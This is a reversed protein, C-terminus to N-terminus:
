LGSKKFFAELKAIARDASFAKFRTIPPFSPDQVSTYPDYIKGDPGVFAYSHIDIVQVQGDASIVPQFDRPVIQLENFVREVERLQAILSEKKWNKMEPPTEDSKMFNWAEKVEGMVLAYGHNERQGRSREFSSWIDHQELAGEIAVKPLVAKLPAAIGLEGLYRHIILSYNQDLPSGLDSKLVAPGEASEVHYVGLNMEGMDRDQASKGFSRIYGADQYLARVGDNASLMRRQLEHIDPPSTRLSNTLTSPDFAGCPLTPAARGPVALLGLSLSFICGGFSRGM